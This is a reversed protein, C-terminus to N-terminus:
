RGNELHSSANVDRSEPRERAYITANWNPAGELRVIENKLARIKNLQRSNEETQAKALLFYRFNAYRDIIGIALANAILVMVVLIVAGNVQVIEKREKM